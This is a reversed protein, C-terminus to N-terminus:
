ILGSAVALPRSTLAAARRDAELERDEMLRRYALHGVPNWAVLDRLLGAVFTVSVDHSQLHAIEHALLAELEEPDLGELVDRSVLVKKHRVGVAFAGTAGSELVLVEPARRLGADHALRYVAEEIADALPGEPPRSRAILRHLLAAGIFRRLLMFSSVSLGVLVLWRGASGSSAYPTVVGKEDAVLLLHLLGSPADKLARGIPQWVSIEPLVAHTYTLAAVIPLALPLSLLLGSALGGPLNILRKLFLAAALTVASVALIVVWASDTEIALVTPAATIL